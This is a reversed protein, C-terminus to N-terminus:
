ARKRSPRLGDAMGLRLMDIFRKPDNRGFVNRAFSIGAAGAQVADVAYALAIPESVLPGGAVVIPVPGAAKVALQFSEKSGTYQTKIIDVGLDVGLHVCHAVLEGYGNPDKLRMEDFNDVQGGAEGRPYIIGCIPVDYRKAQEIVEVAHQIMEFAYVSAINIHVAVASANVRLATEITGCQVKRTYSSRTTSASLNVITRLGVFLEPFKEIRGAFTLIATPRASCISELKKTADELGAVSGSILSDDFPCITIPSTRKWIEPFRLYKGCSVM